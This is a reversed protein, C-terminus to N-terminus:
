SIQSPSFAANYKQDSPSITAAIAESGRAATRQYKANTAPPRQDVSIAAAQKAIVLANYADSGIASFMAVADSLM